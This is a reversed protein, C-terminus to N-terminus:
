RGYIDDRRLQRRGEEDQALYYKIDEYWGFWKLYWRRFVSPKM